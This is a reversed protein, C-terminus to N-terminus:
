LKQSVTSLEFARAETLSKRKSRDRELIFTNYSIIHFSRPYKIVIWYPVDILGSYDAAGITGSERRLLVGKRSTALNAVVEQDHHFEKYAISDKGRSDKM